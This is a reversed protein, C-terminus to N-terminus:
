LHVEQFSALAPVSSQAAGVMGPELCSGRRLRPRGGFIPAFNRAAMVVPGLQSRWLSPPPREGRSRVCLCSRPETRVNLADLESPSPATPARIQWPPPLSHKRPPRYMQREIPHTIRTRGATAARPDAVRVGSGIVVRGACASSGSSWAPGKDM